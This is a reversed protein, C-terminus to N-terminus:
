CDIADAFKPQTKLHKYAQKIPNEGTIDYAAYIVQEAFFSAGIEKYSRVHFNVKNKGELSVNEVRHYANIAEFGHPSVVTKILAM